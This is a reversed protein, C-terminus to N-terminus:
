KNKKKESKNVEIKEFIELEGVFLYESKKDDLGTYDPNWYKHAADTAEKYSLRTDPLLADNSKFAEGTAKVKFIAYDSTIKNCWYELQKLNSSLWICNKRSIIKPYDKSRVDELALERIAMGYEYFNNKSDNLLRKLLEPNADKDDIFYRIVDCIDELKNNFIVTPKFNTASCYFSNIDGNTNNIVEGVKWAEDHSNFKHIHYMTRGNIKM